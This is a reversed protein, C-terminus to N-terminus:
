ESVRLLLSLIKIMFIKLSIRSPAGAMWVDGPSLRTKPQIISFNQDFCNAPRQNDQSLFVLSNKHSLTIVPPPSSSWNVGSGKNWKTKVRPWEPGPSLLSYHIWCGAPIWLEYQWTDAWVILQLFPLILSWSSRFLNSFKWCLSSLSTIKNTDEPQLLARYQHDSPVNIVLWSGPPSGQHRFQRYHLGKYCRSISAYM